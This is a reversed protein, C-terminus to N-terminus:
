PNKRSYRTNRPPFPFFWKEAQTVIVFWCCRSATLRVGFHVGFCNFVTNTQLHLYVQIALLIPCIQTAIATSFPRNRGELRRQGVPLGAGGRHPRPLFGLIPIRNLIQAGM